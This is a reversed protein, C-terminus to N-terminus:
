NDGTTNYNTVLLGFDAIDVMGDGNFDAAPAYGIGGTHSGFANVLVGFDAIDVSNDGNSDGARLLANLSITGSTPVHLAANSALYKDGKIHVTYDGTPVSSLSFVGNPAIPATQLFPLTGNTPEFLFRVLQSAAVSAIGELTISGAVPQTRPNVPVGNNSTIYVYSRSVGNNFANGIVAVDVKGDNNFDAFAPSSTQGAFYNLPTQFTGNGNGFYISVMESGRYDATQGSTVIDPRGDGDVDTVLASFGTLYRYTLPLKQPAQFTGDGNGLMVNLTNHENYYLPGFSSSFVFDNKGDGDVDLSLLSTIQGGGNYLNIPEQFTGDGNGRLYIISGNNAIVADLKGDHNLDETVIATSGYYGSISRLNPFTGDGKNLHIYDATGITIFDIKGDGNFDGVALDSVNEGNGYDASPSFTGDGKGLLVVPGRGGVILVDPVGDQNIDRILIKPAVNASNTTGYVSAGYYHVPEFTGDGKDLLVGVGIADFLVLDHKGTRRLDTTVLVQGGTTDSIHYAGPTDFKGAGQNMLVMRPTAIDLKGDGNFDGLAFVGTYRTYSARSVPYTVPPQFGGTGDGFLIKAEGDNGTLIMDTKGDGNIDGFLPTGYADGTDQQTVPRFTGDGKGLAVSATDVFQNGNYLSTIGILDLLGDGNVDGAGLYVAPINLTQPAAFRGTGDNRYFNVSSNELVVLDAAGRQHFEGIVGSFASAPYILDKGFTGDGNGLAVTIRSPTTQGYFDTYSDTQILLDPKGDNNFDTVRIAIPDIYPGSSKAPLFGGKGDNLLVTIGHGAYYTHKTVNDFIGYNGMIIDPRGDGNVDAVGLTRWDGSYTQPSSFTGNGKGHLIKLVANHIPTFYDNYAYEITIIDLIGDGDMDAAFVSGTDVTDFQLGPYIIQAHAPLLICPTLLLAVLTLTTRCVRNMM